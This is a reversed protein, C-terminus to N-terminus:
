GGKKTPKKYNAIEIVTSNLTMSMKVVMGSIKPTMIFNTDNAEM